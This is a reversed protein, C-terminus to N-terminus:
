FLPEVKVPAKGNVSISMGLEDLSPDFDDTIIVPVAPEFVIDISRPNTLIEILARHLARGNKYASEFSGGSGKLEDLFLQRVQPGSIGAGAGLLSYIRKALGKDQVSFWAHSMRVEVESSLVLPNNMDKWVQYDVDTITMGGEVVALGELIMPALTYTYELTEKQYTGTFVVEPINITTGMMTIQINQMSETTKEPIVDSIQRRAPSFVQGITLQLDDEIRCALDSIEAIGRSVAYGPKLNEVVVDNSTIQKIQCRMGDGSYFVDKVVISDISQVKIDLNTMVVSAAKIRQGNYLINPLVLELTNNKFTIDKIEWEEIKETSNLLATLEAKIRREPTNLLIYGLVVCVIVAAVIIKKM